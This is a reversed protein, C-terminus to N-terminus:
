ALFVGGNIHITQGNMGWDFNDGSSLNVATGSTDVKGSNPMAYSVNSLSGASSTLVLNYNDVVHDVTYPSGGILIISGDMSWDFFDGFALTVATGSTNVFGSASYYKPQSLSVGNHIYVLGGAIVMIQTGNPFIQVPSTGAGISGLDTSTGDSLVEYLHSGAAAFMRNEGIWIGRVPSAPLTTWTALGPCGYLVAANEGDGAEIPEAYMNVLRDADATVSRSAYAGGVFNPFKAM